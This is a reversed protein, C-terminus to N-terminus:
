QSKSSEYRLNEIARGRVVKVNGWVGTPESAKVERIPKAPKAKPKLKALLADIDAGKLNKYNVDQVNRLSLTIEGMEDAHAIDEAQEPTVMFTVSEKQKGRAKADDDSETALRSNVGLVFVAQLITETRLQELDDEMTVLVDVYNGPQLFGQLARHGRLDVSMARMGRPIVANLGVGASGDALREPRIFENPLVRERPIQGVVRERSHFVEIKRLEGSEPDNIKPLYKPPLEVVFLDDQSIQVGQYLTRSAVVVTTRPGKAKAKTIETDLGSLMTFVGMLAGGAILAAIGLFAVVKTNDQGAM